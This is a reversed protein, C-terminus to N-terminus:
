SSDLYTRRPSPGNGRGLTTKGRCIGTNAGGGGGGGGGGGTIERDSGSYTGEDGGGGGRAGVTNCEIPPSAYVKKEKTKETARRM